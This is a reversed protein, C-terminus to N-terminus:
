RYCNILMRYLSNKRKMLLYNKITDIETGLKFYYQNKRRQLLTVAMLTCTATVKFM